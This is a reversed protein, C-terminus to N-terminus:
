SVWLLSFLGALIFMTGLVMCVLEFSTYEDDRPNM